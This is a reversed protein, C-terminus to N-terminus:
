RLRCQRLHDPNSTISAATYETSYRLQRQNSMSKTTAVLHQLSLALNDKLLISLLLLTYYLQSCKSLKRDSCKIKFKEEPVKDVEFLKIQPEIGCAGNMKGRRLMEVFLWFGGANRCTSRTDTSKGLWTRSRAVCNVGQLIITRRWWCRKSPIANGPTWQVGGTWHWHFCVMFELCKFKLKKKKGLKWIRCIRTWPFHASIVNTLIFRRRHHRGHRQHSTHLLLRAARQCTFSSSWLNM